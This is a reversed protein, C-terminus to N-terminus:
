KEEMVSRILDVIVEAIDEAEESSIAWEDCFEESTDNGMACPHEINGENFYYCTNCRPNEITEILTLTIVEKLLM